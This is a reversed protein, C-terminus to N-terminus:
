GNKLGKVLNNCTTNNYCYLRIIKLDWTKREFVSRKFIKMATAQYGNTTNNLQAKIGLHITIFQIVWIKANLEQSM